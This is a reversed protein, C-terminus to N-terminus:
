VGQALVLLKLIASVNAVVFEGVHKEGGKSDGEILPHSVYNRMFGYSAWIPKHFYAALLSYM